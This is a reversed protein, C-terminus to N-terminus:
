HHKMNMLIKVLKQLDIIRTNKGYRIDMGNPAEKAILNKGNADVELHKAGSRIMKTTGDSLLAVESTEAYTKLKIFFTRLPNEGVQNFKVEFDPHIEKFDKVYQTLSQM